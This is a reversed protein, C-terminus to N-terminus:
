GDTMTCHCTSVSRQSLGDPVHAATQENTTTHGL